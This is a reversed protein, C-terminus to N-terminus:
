RVKPRDWWASKCGPCIRPDPLKDRKVKAYRPDRPRRPVWEHGCRECRFGRVRVIVMCRGM